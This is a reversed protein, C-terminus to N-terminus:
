LYIPTNRGFNIFFRAPRFLKGYRPAKEQDDQADGLNQSEQNGASGWGPLILGYFNFFDRPRSLEPENVEEGETVEM